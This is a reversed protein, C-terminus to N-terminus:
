EVDLDPCLLRISIIVVLMSIYLFEKKGLVMLYQFKNDSIATYKSVTFPKLSM